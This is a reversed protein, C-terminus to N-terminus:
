TRCSRFGRRRFTLGEVVRRFEDLMPEMLPSHFAHSVRLRRTRRGRDAWERAVALVTRSGSLVVSTPGNVAAVAVGDPLGGLEDESAEVAVMAGGAPLAQMLRGARGGVRLRRCSGVGRRLLRGDGRRDFARGPFGAARGVSGGAPVARGRRRVAGAPRVRDPGVPRKAASPTGPPGGFVVERLPGTSSRTWIRACRTSRTRSCRFTDYLQRGMGARQAGQGTFLCALRGGAGHRAPRSRCRLSGCCSSGTAPSWAGGAGAVRGSRGGALVGRRGPGAGAPGVLLEASGDAQARLGAEDRGSLLVPVAPLSVAPAAAGDAAPGEDPVPPEEVIVHANTGSMGFSSVGARRPRDGGAPWAVPETLLRGRGRSWDVQSSPADVHLTQPLLGHRLAMVMKIVGGVGSAAQAHGINSKLSGLWLPRDPTGTGGTPPWCRRRRSRTAWRPAPATARSRTWTPRRVARRQGAGAPDGAAPGPREARDARQVRRGPQGRSGRVVALVPHGNRRADSLREVLLLGVGEAWGTGDAADAFAKCRGDAALGRQRTFEVFTGPTAMVVVGGALAMDCEGQRLSQAALHLAVLSSSCATDVTVAPGELGFTYSLRGSAVSAANGTGVYGEAGDAAATLLLLATTRATAHRRVGRDPQGAAVGPRHRGARGGGLRDGAAAAAAPGDGAAERPRIGFFGADFDAAGDLFGGERAYSTGAHDPDPDYFRKSTGAATPRSRGAGRGRRRRGSGM